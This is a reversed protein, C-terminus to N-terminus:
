MENKERKLECNEMSLFIALIHMCELILLETGEKVQNETLNMEYDYVFQSVNTEPFNASIKVYETLFKTYFYDVDCLEMKDYLQMQTIMQIMENMHDIADLSMDREHLTHYTIQLLEGYKGKPPVPLSFKEQMYRVMELTRHQWTMEKKARKMGADAIKEAEKPHELLWKVKIPLEELDCLSYLVMEKGDTFNERIYISEDTVAVTGSLMAAAIREQFGDKFWPMINISIKANAVAKRAIYLNGKEIILNEIGKGKFQEWGAGFVHVQLGNEVLSRIMKDRYYSRAYIDIMQFQNLLEHFGQDSVTGDFTDLYNHLCMELDQEPHEIINAAMYKAVEHLTKDCQFINNYINEPDSYSGTFVINKSRKHYPIWRNYAQGSLPIYKVYKINPCYQKLYAEHRRDCTFVICREDLHTLRERHYFPHDTIYTVYYADPLLTRLARPMIVNCVFIIDIKINRVLEELQFEASKEMADLIYTNYGALRFGIEIEEIYNRMANYQSQGQVLLVNNM